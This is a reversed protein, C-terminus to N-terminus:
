GMQHIHPALLYRVPGNGLIGGWGVGGFAFFCFLVVGGELFFFWSLFGFCVFVFFLFCFVFFL